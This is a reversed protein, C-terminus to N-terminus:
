KAAQEDYYKKAGPHIPAVMGDSATELSIDNAAQHATKLGDLNDFLAKTLKYGDSESLDSNVLLANMIAATPM